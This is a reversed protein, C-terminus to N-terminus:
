GLFTTFVTTHIKLHLWFLQQAGNSLLCGFLHYSIEKRHQVHNTLCTGSQMPWQDAWFSLKQKYLSTRWVIEFHTLRM